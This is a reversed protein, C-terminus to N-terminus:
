VRWKCRLTTRIKESLDTTLSQTPKYIKKDTGFNIKELIPHTYRIQCYSSITLTHRADEEADLSRYWLDEMLQYNIKENYYNAAYKMVMILWEYNFSILCEDRGNVNIDQLYRCLMSMQETVDVKFPVLEPEIENLECDERDEKYQMGEIIAETIYLTASNKKGVKQPTKNLGFTSSGILLFVIIILSKIAQSVKVYLGKM